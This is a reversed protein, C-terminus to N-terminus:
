LGRPLHPLNRTVDVKDFLEGYEGKAGKNLLITLAECFQDKNLSLKNDYGDGEAMFADQLREMDKINLRNELKMDIPIVKRERDKDNDPTKSLEIDLASQDPTAISVSVVSM